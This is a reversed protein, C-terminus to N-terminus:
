KSNVIADNIYQLLNVKATLNLQVTGYVRGYLLNYMKYIESINRDSSIFEIEEIFRTPKLIDNPGFAFIAFHYIYYPEKEMYKVSMTDSDARAIKGNSLYDIYRYRIQNVYDGDRLHVLPHYPVWHYPEKDNDNLIDLEIIDTYVRVFM